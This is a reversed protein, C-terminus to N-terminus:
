AGSWGQGSGVGSSDLSVNMLRITAPGQSVMEILFPKGTILPSTVSGSPYSIMGQPGAPDPQLMGRSIVIGSPWKKM